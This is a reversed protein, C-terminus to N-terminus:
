RAAGVLSGLPLRRGVRGAEYATMLVEQVKRGFHGDSVLPLDNMCADVFHQHEAVWPNEDPNFHNSYPRHTQPVANIRPAIWGDNLGAGIDSEPTYVLLSPRETPQLRITGRSGFIEISEKFARGNQANPEQLRNSGDIEALVRPTRILTVATDEVRATSNLTGYEAYVSEVPPDNLLHLLYAVHHVHGDM